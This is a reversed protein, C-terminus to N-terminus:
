QGLSQHVMEQLMDNKNMNAHIVPLPTTTTTTQQQQQPQGPALNIVFSNGGLEQLTPQICFCLPGPPPLPPM